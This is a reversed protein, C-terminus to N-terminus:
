TDGHVRLGATSLVSLSCFIMYSSVCGRRAFLEKPLDNNLLWESGGVAGGRGQGGEGRCRPSTPHRPHRPDGSSGIYGYNWM